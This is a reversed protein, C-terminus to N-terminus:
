KAWPLKKKSDPNAEEPSCSRHIPEEDPLYFHAKM